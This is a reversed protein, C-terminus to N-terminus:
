SGFGIALYKAYSDTSDKSILTQQLFLRGGVFIPPERMTIGAFNNEAEASDDPNRLYLEQKGQKAPDVAVVQGGSDYTPKKYAILKDGDMRVPVISRKEGAPSKWKPKGTNFDFAMIENTRGYDSDGQHEETPLYVYKDDAASTACSEVETSCGPDYKREGTSIKAKLKADEGVTMVDTTTTEGAGVALVVPDTSIVSISEVGRPAEFEWKSKGTTPNLKQVKMQPNDYGGCSVVALLEEGGAFGEDKCDGTPQAKWLPSGGSIKYAVSGGLWKAAVVDQSITMNIGLTSADDANPMKEQWDKKGKDLDIVAIQSCAADSSKTEGFVVATKGSETVHRSSACVEGDLPIEWAKKGSAANVGIIGNVTSKAFTKETAWAGVVSVPDDDTITPSQIKFLEKGDVSAPKNSGGETGQSSGGGGKAEDDSGGDDGSLLFFGGVGAVLVLAVVAAVIAVVKGNGGGGPGGPASGPPMTPYMGPGGQGFPPQGPQGPQGPQ